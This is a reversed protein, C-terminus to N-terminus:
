RGFMFGHSVRPHDNIDGPLPTLPRKSQPKEISEKNFSTETTEDKKKQNIKCRLEKYSAM